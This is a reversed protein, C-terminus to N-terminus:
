FNNSLITKLSMVLINMDNKDSENYNSVSYNIVIVSIIPMLEIHYFKSNKYDNVQVWISFIAGNLPM